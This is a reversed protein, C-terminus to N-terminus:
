AEDLLPAVMSESNMLCAIVREERLLGEDNAKYIPITIVVLSLAIVGTFPLVIPLLERM